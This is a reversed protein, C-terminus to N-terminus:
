PIEGTRLTADRQQQPPSLRCREDMFRLRSGDKEAIFVSELLADNGNESYYFEEAGAQVTLNWRERDLGSILETATRLGLV